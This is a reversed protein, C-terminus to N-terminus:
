KLSDTHKVKLWVYKQKKLKDLSEIEFLYSEKEPNTTDIKLMGSAGVFKIYIVTFISGVLVGCVYVLFLTM